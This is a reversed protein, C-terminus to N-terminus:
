LSGLDSVLERRLKEQLVPSLKRGDVTLYFVDIVMQGETDILAIEINCNDEALRSAIRHLLGARDQTIVELLTSHTSAADDLSIRTEIKVKVAGSRPPRMRSKMLRELSDEEHLVDGLSRQFRDWEPLNLELTRYPDTFYFSDVVVGAQDSFANAKVINMGWAALVGAVRAFLRPRDLTIVTLEYWHRGMSLHLQVPDKGLQDAMQLHQVIEKAPYTRLYREPLGELFDRLKKGLTPALARIRATQEDELETHLRQDASRNLHNASAIYLQWVSDAKWPTLAEPNVAQIDAYTLLTLMKLREPTGVKGSFQRITEPDFVDRRLAASVDLHSAILFLVTEREAPDLDLRELCREAIDVSAGVHEVGPVGKGVDHLLLGLFLLEPRELEFLLEAFHQQWEPLDSRELRHLGEIAVFTHEDVTFRHYYDRIVLADIKAFEPLLLTLVHLSHMSRLAEAAHTGLLVERLKRWVGAGQPPHLVLSPLIQAVRQETAASLKLGHHAQFEFLRLLMEPDHLGSPQQLFIRSDVVSFDANSVRSRWNQVQRYLSSKRAPLEELIQGTMRFVDRAQQFYVRMWGAADVPDARVLGMHQRAADAQAEWSLMNDDRGFRFHLFCRVTTLFDFAAELTARQGPPLISNEEPWRELREVGALLALWNLVNYDRLGGPGDKLNPELHFVTNGFKRHRGRTVETLNEVLAQYERMILKPLLKERLRTFLERDGALFRCDLLSITFETNNPDFRDCEALTRTAPSLRLRLDWLEQSFRRVPDRLAQEGSASEHLFLLDIDSHPFLMRRGYGGLAILAFKPPEGGECIISQWLRLALSDVLETRQATAARGDRNEAFARQIRASNEQYLDRLENQPISLSSV